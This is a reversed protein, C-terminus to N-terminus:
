GEGRVGGGEGRGGGEEWIHSVNHSEEENDHEDEGDNPEGYKSLTARLM